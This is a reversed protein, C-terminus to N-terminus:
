HRLVARIADRARDMIAAPWGLLLNATASGSGSASPDTRYKGRDPGDSGMACLREPSHAERLLPFEEHEEHEAHALVDERLQTLLTDVGDTDPGIWMLTTLLEKARGEEGLRARVM